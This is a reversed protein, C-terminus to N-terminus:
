RWWGWMGCGGWNWLIEKSPMRVKMFREPKLANMHKKYGYGTPKNNIGLGRTLVRGERPDGKEQGGLTRITRDQAERRVERVQGGVTRTVKGEKRDEGELGSRIRVKGKEKPRILVSGPMIGRTGVISVDTRVKVRRKERGFLMRMINRQVEGRMGVQGLNWERRTGMMGGKAKGMEGPFRVLIWRRPVGM